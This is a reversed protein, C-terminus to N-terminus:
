KPQEDEPTDEQNRWNGARFAELDRIHEFVRQITPVDELRLGYRLGNEVAPALVVDALTLQDGYSYKGALPRVLTEFAKLGEVMIKGAWASSDGGQAQVLKLIRQNTPPQIDCVILNVLDRVHARAVPDSVPPLLPTTGPFAEEFFELIAVSQRISFRTSDQAEKPPISTLIPVTRNPNISGFGDTFQEGKRLNIYILRLPIGKIKAATRVRATATSRFFSHLEFEPTETVM